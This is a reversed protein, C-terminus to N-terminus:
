RNPQTTVTPWPTNDDLPVIWTQWDIRAYTQCGALFSILAGVLAAVAAVLLIRLQRRLWSPSGPTENPKNPRPEM